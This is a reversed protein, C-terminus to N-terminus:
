SRKEVKERLKTLLGDLKDKRIIGAFENRYNSVLGINEIIVDYVRWQEGRDLMKYDLPFTDGKYKVTTRVLAKPPKIKASDFTVMDKEVADLKDLYTKALLDSFLKVFEGQQAESYKKWYKGLSRKSMEEFDFRETLVERMKARRAEVQEDGPLSEVIKVLEEITKEMMVKPDSPAALLAAPVLSALLISLFRSM